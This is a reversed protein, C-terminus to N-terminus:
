AMGAESIAECHGRSPRSYSIKKSRADQRVLAISAGLHTKYRPYRRRDVGRERKREPATRQIKHLPDFGQFEMGCNNCLLNHLGAIRLVILSDHFGRQVRASKCRPCAMAFFM